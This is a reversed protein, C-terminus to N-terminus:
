DLRYKMNHSLIDDSFYTHCGEVTFSIVQGMGCPVIAKVRSERQAVLLMGPQLSRVEAWGMGVIAVRHTDTFEPERGDELVVRMRNVWRTHPERVTGVAPEMTAEDVGVVQMGDVLSGALVTLGSALTIPVWPAPCGGGGLSGGGSGSGGSPAGTPPTNNRTYWGSATPHFWRQNSWGYSNSIDILMHGVFSSNWVTTGFVSLFNGWFVDGTVANASDSHTVSNYYRDSLQTYTTFTPTAGGGNPFIQVRAQRMGDLNSDAAAPQLNWRFMALGSTASIAVNLCDIDPRGDRATTDNNGRWVLVGNSSSGDIANLLRFWYDTFKRKGIKLGASDLLLAPTSPTNTMMCAGATAYYGGNVEDVAQTFNTTSSATAALKQTLIAGDVILDSKVMLKAYLNDFLAYDGTDMLRASILFSVFAAGAPAELELTSDQYNKSYSCGVVNGVDALLLAGTPGYFAIVVAAGGVGSGSVRLGFAKATFRYREGPNCPLRMPERDPYQGTVGPVSRYGSGSYANPAYVDVAVGEWSGAPAGTLDMESNGNPILNEGQVVLQGAFLKGFLGTAAVLVDTWATGAANVQVTRHDTTIAYYGAPYSASPLAPKSAYAWAVQHPQSALQAAAAKNSADTAAATIADNSAKTANAQAITNQLATRASAIDSWKTRLTAGGGAGLPTDQAPDTWAPTLADLFATLAAGAATYAASSVPPVCANAAAQLQAMTQVEANYNIIMQAKAPMCLWDPDTLHPNVLATTAGPTASAGSGTSSWPSSPM